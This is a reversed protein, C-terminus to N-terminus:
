KLKIVEVCRHVRSQKAAWATAESATAARRTLVIRTGRLTVCVLRWRPPKERTGSMIAARRLFHMAAVSPASDPDRFTMCRGDAWLDYVVSRVEFPSLRGHFVVSQVFDLPIAGRHRKLAALLTQQDGVSSGLPDTRHTSM